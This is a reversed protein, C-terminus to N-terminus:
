ESQEAEVQNAVFTMDWGYFAMLNANANDIAQDEESATVHTTLTFYDGIFTVNWFTETPPQQETITM